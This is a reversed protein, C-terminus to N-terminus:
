TTTIASQLVQNVAIGLRRLDRSIHELEENLLIGSSFYKILQRAIYHSVDRFHFPSLTYPSFPAECM